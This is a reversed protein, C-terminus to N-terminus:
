AYSINRVLSEASGGVVALTVKKIDEPLFEAVRDAWEVVIINKPDVIYTNWNLQKLEKSEELRYADIHVLQSFGRAQKQNALSYIKELVFTPSTVTEDVGLARALAKTFTTKGAGLDGYLGVVTATKQPSLSELFNEAETNLEAETIETM